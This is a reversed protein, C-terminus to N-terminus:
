GPNKQSRRARELNQRVSVDDPKLELAKEFHAIAEAIRGRGVLMVGLNSHAEPDDPRCELADQFHIIAEDIKGQGALTNALNYHADAYDPQAILANRYQVIAEAVRRRGALVNGINCYAMAYDPNIELAKQFHAIAEDAKGQDALANGLNNHLIANLPLKRVAIQLHEFAVNPRGRRTALRAFHHHLCWDDPANAIAAEYTSWAAQLAEPTSALGRLADRRRRADAQRLSHNFQNTFPAKATMDVMDAYSQYEDWSTFALLAECRQRSPVARPTRNALQPVAERVKDLMARALLYSGEFTFHVHEYFLDGGPIGKADPAPEALVTEADALRVGAAKQADAVERISANIRTDARFRLVDLDRALAFRDRAEKMRGTNMLCQGIHFQLEAFRDDLKAAAQFQGLAEDWCNSAELAGGTRYLAEWKALDGSMMGSRHLSAFPPCTGLNVALTSLVVGAGARRAIGCIDTLNRRYNDYVATLRPDDATVPNNMFMEMGRWRSPTDESRHLSGAVNGILQGVRTSKVWLSARIMRLSPLWQQFVTGPGYPGVVENNGMYVVFLDPERAACDRAIERVAHSNIAAMAGNVIEFRTGPYQERLMAELIRGFSFSSDPTGMAASSGLVFIRVSGAPKASLVCPHPHRALSRPFFRWGFRHNTTWAGNADPGIFFGTPYGYGGLRLGAELISFFLLPSLVLLAARLVWGRWGRFRGMTRNSVPPSATGSQRCCAAITNVGKM